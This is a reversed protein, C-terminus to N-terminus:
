RRASPDSGRANRRELIQAYEDSSLFFTPIDTQPNKLKLNIWYAVDADSAPRDLIERYLARIFTALDNGQSQFYEDSSYHKLSARHEKLRRIGVRFKPNNLDDFRKQDATAAAGVRMDYTFREPLGGHALTALIMHSLVLPALRGNRQYLAIWASGGIFTIAVLMLSPLHILGFIAAALFISATKSRTLEYCVPALFLQLALQQGLAAAFKGFVWQALKLPPKDLFVFEFTESPDGIFRAAILLVTSLLCSVALIEFWSRVVGAKPGAQEASAKRRRDFSLWVTAVIVGYVIVNLWSPGHARLFWLESELLGVVVVLEVAPRLRDSSTALNLPEISRADM